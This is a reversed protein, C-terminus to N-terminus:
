VVIEDFFILISVLGGIVDDVVIMSMISVVVIIM